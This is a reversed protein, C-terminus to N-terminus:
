AMLTGFYHVGLSGIVKQSHYHFRFVKRLLHNYVGQEDDSFTIPDEPYMINKMQEIHCLYGCKKQKIEDSPRSGRNGNLDLQSKIGVPLTKEDNESFRRGFRRGFVRTVLPMVISLAVCPPIADLSSLTLRSKQKDGGRVGSLFFPWWLYWLHSIQKFLFDTNGALWHNPPASNTDFTLEFQLFQLRGAHASFRGTQRRGTTFPGVKLDLTSSLYITIAM